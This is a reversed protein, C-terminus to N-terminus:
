KSRPPDPVPCRRPLHKWTRFACIEYIADRSVKYRRSLWHYNYRQEQNLYRIDKVQMETLKAQVNNSGTNILKLKEHANNRLCSKCTVRDLHKINKPKRKLLASCKSCYVTIYTVKFHEEKPKSWRKHAGARAMDTNLPAM